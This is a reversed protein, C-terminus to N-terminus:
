YKRFCQNMLTLQATQQHSCGEAINSHISVAARRLQNTM